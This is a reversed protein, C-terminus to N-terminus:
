STQSGESNLQLLYHGCTVLDNQVSITSEHWLVSLHDDQPQSLAPVVNPLLSYTNPDAHNLKKNPQLETFHQQCHGCSGQQLWIKHVNIYTPFQTTDNRM